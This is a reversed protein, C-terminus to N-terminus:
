GISGPVLEYMTSRVVPLEPLFPLRFREGADMSLTVVVSPSKVIIEHDQEDLYRYPYSFSFSDQQVGDVFVNCILDDDFFSVKSHSETKELISAGSRKQDELLHAIHALAQDEDFLLSGEGLSEEKYYLAAGAACDETLNKMWTQDRWDRNLDARYTLFSLFLIMLALFFPLIKM